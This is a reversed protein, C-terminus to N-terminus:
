KSGITQSKLSILIKKIHSQNVKYIHLDEQLLMIFSGFAKFVEKLSDNFKYPGIWKQYNKSGMQALWFRELIHKTRLIMVFRVSELQM